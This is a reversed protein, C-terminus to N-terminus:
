NRWGQKNNDRLKKAMWIILLAVWTLVSIAIGVFFLKSPRYTVEIQDNGKKALVQVTGRSSVTHKSPKGNLIVQTHKYAVVPVDVVAKEKLKIKYIVRNPESIPIGVREKGNVILKHSLISNIKPYSLLITASANMEGDFSAKPFYDAEGYTMVYSFMNKYSDNDVVANPLIQATQKAKSLSTQPATIIRSYVNSISGVYSVFLGFVVLALTLVRVQKKMNQLLNSFILSTVVLVFFITYSNFRYPFQIVGLINRLPTERMMEWPVITTTILMFIIGLLYSIKEVTRARKIFWWGIVVTAIVVIGLSKNDSALNVISSLFLEQFSELFYFDKRPASIGQNIYDTIFPIIIGMSLLLALIGNKVLNIIVRKIKDINTIMYILSVIAITLSAIYTSVIHSYILLSWGIGLLYWYKGDTLAQHLGVFVIPIFTYAIFEGLTFNYIGLFLHYPAIVYMISFLISRYRNNSFIYMSYYAVVMTLLMMISFWAYFATVPALVFKLLAWPYLFVTPYFLFSAVGTSNFTHSAIYTIGEGNKLNNYIEEVRSFHFVSDASPYLLNKKIFISTLLLTFLCFFLIIGLNIWINNRKSNLM